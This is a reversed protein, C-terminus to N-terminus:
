GSCNKSCRRCLRWNEPLVPLRGGGFSLGPPWGPSLAPAHCRYLWDGPVLEAMTALHDKKLYLMEERLFYFELLNRTNKMQLDIALALNIDAQRAADGPFEQRLPELLACGKAWLDSMERCLTLAEPLTHHYALCEGIRDGSVEPFYKMIWSPSIPQDVPFLHWPWVISHHLPGYWEFALNAPFKRYGSAFYQWAQVVVPAFRRWEPRALEELFDQENEPFPEFSLAGAARNMLGPYNGFYWCQMAAYVGLEHM